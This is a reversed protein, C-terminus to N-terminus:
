KATSNKRCLVQKAKEFVKLERNEKCDISNKLDKDNIQM